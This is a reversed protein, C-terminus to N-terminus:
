LSDDTWDCNECDWHVQESHSSVIPRECRPCRGTFLPHTDLLGLRQELTLRQVPDLILENGYYSAGDPQWGDGYWALQEDIGTIALKFDSCRDGEVGSPHVGCVM